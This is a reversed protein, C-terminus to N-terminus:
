CGGSPRQDSVARFIRTTSTPPVWTLANAVPRRVGTFISEPGAIVGAV